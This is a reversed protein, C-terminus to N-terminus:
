IDVLFPTDFCGYGKVVSMENVQAPKTKFSWGSQRNEFIEAGGSERKKWLCTGFVGLESVVPGQYLGALSMLMGEQVPTQIKEMLICNRWEIQPVLRLKNLIDHGYTNHGGGELSPKMIYGGVAEPSTALARGAAGEPSDDLTYMPIFTSKIAAAESPHLFHELQGPMSLRQQVRKYTTLHALLSPAKIARSRELHLRAARGGSASYERPEHGGRMYCVSIELPSQNYPHRTYLLERNPGLSLYLLIEDSFAVRHCPIPPQQGWLEYEIPREDCINFNYPQVIMLIGTGVAQANVPPGYLKHAEVLGDVIGHVTENTSPIPPIALQPSIEDPRKYAGSRFLHHHMNYVINGHTGGAVTYSNFEVQKLQATASGPRHVMYDSRFIGLSAPQVYGSKKVEEHISWLIKTLQDHVILDSLTDRLWEEDEAVKMYLKNFCTQLHLAIDFLHRPFQTPYLSAGVPRSLVTHEEDTKVLKLLSGHTIQYDKVASILNALQEESFDPLHPKFYGDSM